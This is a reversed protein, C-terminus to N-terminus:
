SGVVCCDIVGVGSCCCVGVDCVLCLWMCLVVVVVYMAHYRLM